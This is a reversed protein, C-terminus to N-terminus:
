PAAPLWHPLEGLRSSIASRARAHVTVIITSGETHVHHEVTTVRAMSAPDVSLVDFVVPFTERLLAVAEGVRPVAETQMGYLTTWGIDNGEEGVADLRRVVRIRLDWSVM